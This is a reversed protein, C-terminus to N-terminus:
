PPSKPYIVGGFNFGWILHQWLFAVISLPILDSKLNLSSKSAEDENIEFLGLCTPLKNAFSPMFHGLELPTRCFEKHLNLKLFFDVKLLQTDLVCLFALFFLEQKASQFKQISGTSSM